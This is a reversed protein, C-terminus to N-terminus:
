EKASKQRITKKNLSSEAKKEEYLAVFNVPDMHFPAISARRTLDAIMERVYPFIISACNIRVIKELERKKPLKSFKFIGMVAVNFIFPQKENASDVSVTVNVTKDKKRHLITIRCSIEVPENKPTKFNTNLEFHSKLLRLSEFSFKDM